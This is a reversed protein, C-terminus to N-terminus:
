GMRLRCRRGRLLGMADWCFICGRMVGCCMFVFGCVMVRCNEGMRTFNSFRIMWWWPRRPECREWFDWILRATMGGRGAGWKRTASGRMDGLVRSLDEARGGMM